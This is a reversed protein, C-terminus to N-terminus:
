IYYIVSFYMYTRVLTHFMRCYYVYVPNVYPCDCITLWIHYNMYWWDCITMRLNMHPWDHMTLWIHDIMYPWDYITLWIHPTYNFTWIHNTMISWIHDVFLCFITHFRFDYIFMRINMYSWFFLWIGDCHFDTYSQDYIILSSSWIHTWIHAYLSMYSNVGLTWIHVNSRMHSEYIFM